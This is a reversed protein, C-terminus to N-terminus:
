QTSFALLSLIFIIIRYREEPEPSPPMPSTFPPPPAEPNVTKYNAVGMEEETTEEEVPLEM